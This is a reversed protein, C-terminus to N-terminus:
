YGDQVCRYGSGHFPFSEAHLGPQCNRNADLIADCVGNPARFVGYGCGDAASQVTMREPDPPPSTAALTATATGLTACVVAILVAASDNKWHHSIM